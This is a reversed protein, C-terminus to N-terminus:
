TSSQVPRLWAPKFHSLRMEALFCSYRPQPHLLYYRSCILALSCCWVVSDFNGSRQVWPRESEVAWDQRIHAHRDTAKCMWASALFLAYTNQPQYAPRIDCHTSEYKDVSFLALLASIRNTSITNPPQPTGGSGAPNRLSWVTSQSGQLPRARGM